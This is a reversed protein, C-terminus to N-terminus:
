AAELQDKLWAAGGLEELKDVQHQTLMFRVEVLASTQQTSGGESAGEGENDADGAESSAHDKPNKLSALANRVSARTTKGDALGAALRHFTKLAEEGGTRAIKDLGLLIEPDESLGEALIGRVSTALKTISMHKSVWATSKGLAKAVAKPTRYHKLLAAVGDAVDALGLNERQLNEIAQMTAAQTEDVTRVLAPVETLGAMSAAILRREGAIVLYRADDLPDRQVIIPQLIGVEGISGALEKLSEEDFGNRTRIQTAARIAILPLTAPEGIYHAAQIM